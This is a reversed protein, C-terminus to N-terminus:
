SVDLLIFLISEDCVKGPLFDPNMKREFLYSAYGKNDGSILKNSNNMSTCHVPFWTYIGLPTGDESVFKLIQMSNDTNSSFNKKEEPPNAEYASPSRNINGQDIDGENFFIHGKTQGAM